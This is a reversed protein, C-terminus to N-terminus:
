MEEEIINRIRGAIATSATLGPSEIGLLNILGPFGKEKEHVILFDGAERGGLYLKPRIGSMDPTLDNEELFPLYPKVKGFFEAKNREEVDYNIGDTFFASPGLKFTGDLRMVTHIGLSIATPVPYVLMKIKGRHRNSVNFYEGKCFRIEYGTKERNLGALAAIKASNLGACNIIIDSLFSFQEGDSDRVTVKYGSTERELATVCCNYSFTVGRESAKTELYKMFRHTDFIGTSRSYIGAFGRVAPELENIKKESILELDAGNSKGNECLREIDAIEERLTAIVIKGTRNCPINNKTCLEWLLRNGEVCFKAKLSNKKYYIGAHIVESNRSSTERGFSDHQELVVISRSKKSLEEAAALGVAGAGIVTISVKDM